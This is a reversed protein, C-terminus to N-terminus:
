TVIERRQEVEVGVRYDLEAHVIARDTDQGVAVRDHPFHAVVSHARPATDARIARPELGAGRFGRPPTRVVPLQVVDRAGREADRARADMVSLLQM